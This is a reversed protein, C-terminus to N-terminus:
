LGRIKLLKAPIGVYVGNRRTDKTVVANAGIVCGHEITVGDLVKVGAGLWCDDKIVIGKKSLGQKYIYTDPDDFIHNSPVIVCHAAIRVGQGIRTGGQGYVVTYPNISTNKGIEIDGGWTLLQVGSRIECNDGIIINGGAICNMKVGKEILVHKGISIGPKRRWSFVRFRYCLIQINRSIFSLM